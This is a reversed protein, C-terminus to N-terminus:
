NINRSVISTKLMSKERRKSMLTEGLISELFVWMLIGFHIRFVSQQTGAWVILRVSHHPRLPSDSNTQARSAIWTSNSKSLWGGRGAWKVETGEMSLLLLGIALSKIGQHTVILQSAWMFSKKLWLIECHAKLNMATSLGTLLHYNLDPGTLSNLVGKPPWLWTLSDPNADPGLLISVLYGFFPIKFASALIKKQLTWFM